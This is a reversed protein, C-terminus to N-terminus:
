TGECVESFGFLEERKGLERTKVERRWKMKKLLKLIEEEFGQTQGHFQQFSGFRQCVLRWGQGGRGVM